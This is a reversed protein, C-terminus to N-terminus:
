GAEVLARRSQIEEPSLGPVQEKKILDLDMPRLGGADDWYGFVSLYKTDPELVVLGHVTNEPAYWFGPARVKFMQDGLQALVSGRVVVFTQGVTHRHLREGDGIDGGGQAVYIEPVDMFHQIQKWV